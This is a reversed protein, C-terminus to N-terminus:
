GQPKVRTVGSPWNPRFRSDAIPVNRVVNTYRIIFYDGSGTEYFKQQAPVWTSEDLWLDIRSIEKRVEDDKPILQLRVVKQTGLTEEGEVTILYSEKLSNASTGFGLLVFQDLLARHQGLNYEEVRRIKPNYIYLRDGSRLITRPDPTTLDIRMKADRRMRIQGSETSHDNVVVTVKTREVDATLSQFERAGRDVQKLIDAVTWAVQAGRAPFAPASLTAVAVLIAVRRRLVHFKERL